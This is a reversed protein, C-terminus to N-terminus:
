FRRKPFLKRLVEKVNADGKNIGGLYMVVSPANKIIDIFAMLIFLLAFVGYINFWVKYWIWYDFGPHLIFLFFPCLFITVWSMTTFGIRPIIIHLLATDEEKPKWYWIYMVSFFIAIAITIFKSFELYQFELLVQLETSLSEFVM